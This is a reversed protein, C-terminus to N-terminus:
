QYPGLFTPRIYGYPLEWLSQHTLAIQSCKDDKVTLRKEETVEHVSSIVRLEKQITKGHENFKNNLLLLEVGEWNLLQNSFADTAILSGGCQGLLVQRVGPEWCAVDIWM